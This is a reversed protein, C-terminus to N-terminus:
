GKVIFRGGNQLKWANWDKVLVLRRGGGRSWHWPIEGDELLAIATTRNVGLEQAIQGTTYPKLSGPKRPAM